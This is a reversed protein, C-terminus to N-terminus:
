NANTCLRNMRVQATVHSLVLAEVDMSVERRSKMLAKSISLGTLLQEDFRPHHGGTSAQQFVDQVPASLLYPVLFAISDTKVPILVYFETSCLVEEVGLADCFGVPIYAVQKLYPRLRSIIVAGEPVRKKNSIRGKATDSQLRLNILGGDANGTDFVFARESLRSVTQRNVTAVDPLPIGSAMSQLQRSSLWYEPSLSCAEGLDAAAISIKSLTEM